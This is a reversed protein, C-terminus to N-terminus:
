FFTTVKMWGAGGAGGAGGNGGVAGGGGGGGGGKIAGASGAGALGASSSGGGAGGSGAGFAGQTPVTGGVTGTAGGAGGTATTAISVVRGGNGGATGAPGATTGGGAGGGAGGGTSDGGVSGAAGNAGGGGGGAGIASTQDTAAIGSGGARGGNAGAAGGTGTSADGGVASAGAGGGGGSAAASQGGAGRGGGYAVVHTGFSTNGGATGNSGANGDITAGAGGAAGAGITVAVTAGLASAELWAEQRAGGGGGGGGSNATASATRAGGGGSGGAGYAEVLVRAADAPKTWTGNATFIEVLPAKAGLAARAATDNATVLFAQMDVSFDMADVLEALNDIAEVYGITYATMGLTGLAEDNTADDILTQAWSSVIANSTETTLPLAAIPNGEINFGLFYLQRGALNAVLPRTFPDLTPHLRIGREHTTHYLYQIINTIRDDAEEIDDVDLKSTNNQDILQTIAPARYIIIDEASTPIGDDGDIYDQTLEVTVGAPDGLDTGDITYDTDLVLTVEDDVDTTSSPDPKRIVVLDAKRFIVYPFAWSTTAGNGNYAIKFATTEVTM